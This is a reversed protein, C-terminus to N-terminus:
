IKEKIFGIIQRVMDYGQAGDVEAALEFRALFRRFNIGTYVLDKDIPNIKMVKRRRLPVGVPITLHSEQSMKESYVFSEFYYNDIYIKLNECVLRRFLNKKRIKSGSLIVKCGGVTCIGM